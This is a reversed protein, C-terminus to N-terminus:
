KKENSNSEEDETTIPDKYVLETLGLKAACLQCMHTQFDTKNLYKKKREQVSLVPSEAGSPELM